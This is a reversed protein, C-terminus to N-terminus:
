GRPRVSGTPQPPSPPGAARTVATMVKPAGLMWQLKKQFAAPVEKKRLPNM